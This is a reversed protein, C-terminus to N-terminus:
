DIPTVQIGIPARVPVGLSRPVLAAGEPVNDDVRTPLKMTNGNWRFEVQAGDTVGIRDADSPNLAMHLSRTREHLLVSPVVTTGGDYLCTIPVLLLGDVHFEEDPITWTIEFPEDPLIGPDLQIGLGESNKFVTGGFYRDKGGVLPWQPEVKMLMQYTIDAYDPIAENIESMIGAASTAEIEIGLLDALSAVIRWDSRSEGLPMVASYFRQVRREGSTYTGEREIFSQAPFVVDALKATSTLYLEQVVLFTNKHLMDALGPQDGVPDAAVVYVVGKDKLAAQLGNPEPRLGMDWAGQTNNRPWIAILGNNPQGVHKTAALLNACARALAESTGYDLGEGGYFIILNSANILLKAALKLSEDEAFSALEAQENAIHLLGLVSHVAKGYPYRIIHTAFEDLRTPRANAVILTAGKEAARKLRLWWIPAEEHVDSAIVLVADGPGLESLNTGRSVGIQQVLDGGALNDDLIVRGNLAEILRRFTFIDENAARGGIIGLLNREDGSSGSLSKKLGKAARALADDWSVEVLKGGKRIMPKLLRNPSGAFHHAFRGKDCIWIENVAENQRPMVRKVSERGESRAERRINLTLNCGVPCHPCISASAKLEWPRAGFRFDATTLAGVPCIDTTNGSFYSDFGPESSTIIMLRRGRKTFGIAPDGVIEEQFRICRSCQICRERDLFILEGLPVHKDLHMKESLLFRSESHGHRMTLDQLPCEGGKDCIPCDLPHSTLLYELIQKRGERAKESNVRVVWGEGVSTTCSTELDPGFNITPQGNDDLILEGTARDRSPRGIEVLCMRCMGVSEFKPHYCFVPIEIGVKKAADVIKTGKPVSVDVGDITLTVLSESM